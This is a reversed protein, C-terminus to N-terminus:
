FRAHGIALGKNTNERIEKLLEVDEVHHVFLARYNKQRESPSKGLALYESHPTCLNSLKGEANVLYSSWRYEGPNTIWELELRILSLIDTYKWFIVNTKFWVHNTVAKGCRGAERTNMILIDYM